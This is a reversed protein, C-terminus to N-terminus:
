PKVELKYKLNVTGSQTFDDTIVEPDGPVWLVDGIQMLYPPNKVEKYFTGELKYTGKGTFNYIYDNGIRNVTFTGDVKHEIDGELLINWILDYNGSLDTFFQIVDAVSAVENHYSTTLKFTGSGTNTGSDFSGTMTLGGVNSSITGALTPVVGDSAKFADVIDQYWDKYYAGCPPWAGQTYTWTQDYLYNESSNEYHYYAKLRPSDLLVSDPEMKIDYDKGQGEIATGGTELDIDIFIKGKGAPIEFPYTAREEGEPDILTLHPEVRNKIISYLTFFGLNQKGGKGITRQWNMPDNITESPEGYRISWGAYKSTEGEECSSDSIRFGVYSNVVDMYDKVKSAYEKEAKTALKAKIAAFVEPLENNLLEVYYEESIQKQIYEYPMQYSTMTHSDTEAMCATFVDTGAEWYAETYRRVSQEIYAMLRDETMNPKTFARYFYDFWEQKNRYASTGMGQVLSRGEESYYLLYAERLHDKISAQVKTGLRDLAVGIFAVLGMSVSMVSTGVFSGLREMTISMVAKLSNALTGIDDGQVACNIADLITAYTGVYGVVTTLQGIGETSLGLGSLINHGGDLGISQWFALNDRFEQVAGEEPNENKVIRYLQEMMETLNFAGPTEDYEIQLFKRAEDKGSTAFISYYSLHDTTIIAVEEDEDYTFLVPEWEGTEENFYAAHIKEGDNLTFPIRIQATGSLEHVGDSLSLDIGLGRTVGEIVHPTLVGNRICLQVDSCITTPDFTVSCKQGEATLTSDNLEFVEANEYVFGNMWTISDVLAVHSSLDDRGNLKVLVDHQEGDQVIRIDRVQSVPVSTRETGSHMVMYYERDQEPLPEYKQNAKIAFRRWGPANRYLQETGEPVYLIPKGNGFINDNFTADTIIPPVVCLCTLNNLKNCNTFAGEMEVVTNPIIVRFSSRTTSHISGPEMRVLNEPFLESWQEGLAWDSYSVGYMSSSYHQQLSLVLSTRNKNYLSKSLPFATNTSFFPNAEDIIFGQLNTGVFANPSVKRLNPLIHFRPIKLSSGTVTEEPFAVGYFAEEDIERLQTFYPTKCFQAGNATFARRGIKTICGLWAGDGEYTGNGSELFAEEDVELAPSRSIINSLACMMFAQKGIRKVSAGITLHNIRTLQFAFDPVEEMKDGIVLTDITSYIFSYQDIVKINGGITMKTFHGRNYFAQKLIRTVPYDQGEYTIVDPINLAIENPGKPDYEVVCANGDTRLGYRIHDIEIVKMVQNPRFGIFASGGPGYMLTSPKYYGDYMGSWGYNFHFYDSSTYGDCVFAHGSGMQPFAAYPIPHLDDLEKKMVSMLDDANMGTREEGMEYRFNYAVQNTKWQTPSEGSTYHTFMSKGIDAMLRAVADWKEFSPTVDGILDWDYVHGSFDEGTFLDTKYDYLQGYTDKPWKYYNMIQAFATPACGTPCRGGYGTMGGDPAEPCYNNYPSWQNWHTTILPAVIVSGIDKAKRPSKAAMSPNSRLRDIESTYNDLLEKLQIPAEEYCFSGHDCYGLIEEDTGDEGSVIVFGQDNGLNIVYVNGKEAAVKSQMTHALQPSPAKRPARYGKVKALNPQSATAFQSAAELAQEVSIDDALLHHASFLTVLLLTLFKKM